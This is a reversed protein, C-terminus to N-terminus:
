QMWVINCGNSLAIYTNVTAYVPSDNMNIIVSTKGRLTLRRERDFELPLDEKVLRYAGEAVPALDISKVSHVPLVSSVMVSKEERREEGEWVGGYQLWGLNYATGLAVSIGLSGYGGSTSVAMLEELRQMIKPNRHSIYVRYDLYGNRIDQPLVLETATQSHNEQSGNCDDWKKVMLLNVKQIMKKIPAHSSVAIQCKDLSFDEYYSDREYGLLGALVGIITTRPPVSYTLASSNSYYRRFHAMKGCLQLELVQM